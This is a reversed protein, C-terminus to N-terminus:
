LVYLCLFHHPALRAGEAKPECYRVKPTVFDALLNAFAVFYKHM